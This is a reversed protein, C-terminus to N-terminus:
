SRPLKKSDSDVTLDLNDEYAKLSLGFLTRIVSTAPVHLRKALNTIPEYLPGFNIFLSTSGTKYKHTM